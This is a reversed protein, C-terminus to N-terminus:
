REKKNKIITGKFKDGEFYKILNKINKGNLISVELNLQNCKQSAIPDFPANLGPSWKKGVIKQFNTWDIEEIKQANPNEKPDQTYVYDINSLNIIKEIEYEQAILTAVYDTSWGPKWGGAIVVKKKVQLKFSPNKIISAQAVDRFITRLLHANLRTAHIGLWDRDNDSTKVIRDAAQIYNRATAGGGSIIFFKEGKKIRALILTRFAKLFKWDIIGIEPVILSGGLSLIYTNKM